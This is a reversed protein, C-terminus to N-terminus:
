VRTWLATQDGEYILEGGQRFTFAYRGVITGKIRRVQTAKCALEIPTGMKGMRRFRAGHIHTGYGIWGEAHRLDLVFYAHAFGLMATAHIMVAGSVHRPHREPHVRQERTIPLEETPMMRAVLTSTERDISVIEDLLQAGPGYPCDAVFDADLAM